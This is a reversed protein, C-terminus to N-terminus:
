SAVHKQLKSVNKNKLRISSLSQNIHSIYLHETTLLPFWVFIVIDDYEQILYRRFFFILHVEKCTHYFEM